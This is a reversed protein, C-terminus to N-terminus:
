YGTVSSVRPRHAPIVPQERPKPTALESFALVAAAIAWSMVRDDHAGEDAQYRGSGTQSNVVAWVFRHMEVLAARDRIGLTAQRLGRQLASVALKRTQENTRWGFTTSIPKGDHDLQETSYIRPHKWERLLAVVAEGHNNLEPVLLAPAGDPGRWLRSAVDMEAALMGPELKGHLAGVQDWSILDIAVAATYDDGHGSSSDAVIMYDRGSVPFEWVWWDGREDDIPVVGMADRELRGRWEAPEASHNEMFHLSPRDFACRGTALYAEERTLPYEQAGTGEEEQDLLAREHRVWEEDREPHDLAGFFARVYGNGMGPDEGAEVASSETDFFADYGDATSLEVMSGYDAVTPRLSTMRQKAKAPGITRKWRAREDAMVRRFTRGRGANGSSSLSILGSTGGLHQVALEDTNDVALRFVDRLWEPASEYLTRARDIVDQADDSTNSVVLDEGTTYSVADWLGLLSCVTWTIGLQRAKLFIVKRHALALRLARKQCDWLRFPRMGRPTEIEVIQALAFPSAIVARVRTALDDSHVADVAWAEGEPTMAYARLREREEAGVTVAGEPPDFYDALDALPDHPIATSM